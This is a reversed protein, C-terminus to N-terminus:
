DRPLLARFDRVQRALAVMAPAGEQEALEQLKPLGGAVSADIEARTAQRGEAYFEVELPDGVRLMPRDNHDYFIEYGRTIWVLTVGPNRKIAMGPADAAGEPLGDERRKMHPRSLFPCNVASWEACERHCAPEVTSRTIGCMPGLVFGLYAGLKEGCVWCRKAQVAITWKLGNAVRFDPEDKVWSVFWPVPYGRFVPLAQLRAPLPTLEPRLEALKATM